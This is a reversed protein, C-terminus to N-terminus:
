TNLFKKTWLQLAKIIQTNVKKIEPPNHRYDHGIGPMLIFKKPENANKFIERVDQPPVITDTEGAIFLVPVKVRKVERVVDYRKRDDVHSYPVRFERVGSKDPLDRSSISVGDKKWQADKKATFTHESSPMIGLVSTIRPDRTAYLISVTGGRSHGGLLVDKYPYKVLMFELVSKIDKLYNTNTYESIDGESEWTGTPDFRVITYGQKILENALDVLHTYDKSDLYGPCLIALRDTKTKPYHVVAAINKGNSSKIKVKEM